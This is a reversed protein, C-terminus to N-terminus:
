GGAVVQVPVRGPDPLHDADGALVRRCVLQQGAPLVQHQHRVQVVQGPGPGPRPGLLQELPEAQGLRRALQDGGVGTAHLALEVQRHGQDAVGPDDEEVLRGGAQVRAAAAGHPLDDLVQGAAADRDEEGGLVQLLGVLEGTLM